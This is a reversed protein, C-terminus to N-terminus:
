KKNKNASIYYNGDAGMGKDTIHFDKDSLMSTIMNIDNENAQNLTIMFNDNSDVVGMYDFINSYESLGLTGNIDMRYDSMTDRWLKMQERM